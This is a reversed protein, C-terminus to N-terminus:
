EPRVSRSLLAATVDTIKAQRDVVDVVATTLPMDVGLARALDSVARATAVGEATQGVEAMAQELNLGRGLGEGLRHNRSLPSACTAVLDGMGALGAFTDRKGGLATGLRTIEALGRTILSAITNQGHGLGSAAGVVIAIVNKVAGAIEVGIVDDSTYARLYPADCWAAVREVVQADAGAIVTGCPRRQAIEASLNPGSLVTFLEPGVAIEDALIQSIRADTGREIGKVLSLVPIDFATVQGASRWGRLTERLVQAPIAVVAGDAGDLAAAIDATATISSPLDHEGLYGPNRHQERIQTATEERRAWLVVECGADALVQAFVTGWSGAGLVALRTSM